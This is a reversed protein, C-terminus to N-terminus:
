RSARDTYRNLAIGLSLALIGAIVLGWFGIWVWLPTSLVLYFAIVARRQGSSLPFGVM